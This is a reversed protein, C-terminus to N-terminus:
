KQVLELLFNQVETAIDAAPAPKLPRSTLSGGIVIVIATVILLVLAYCRRDARVVLDGISFFFLHDQTSGKSATTHGQIFGV